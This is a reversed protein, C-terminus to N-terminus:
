RVLAFGALTASGRRSGAHFCAMLPGSNKVGFEPLIQPVPDLGIPIGRDSRQIQDFCHQAIRELAGALRFGEAIEEGTAPWPADGLFMAQYVADGFLADIKELCAVVISKAARSSM